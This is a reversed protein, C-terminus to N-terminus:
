SVSSVSSASRPSLSLSLNELRPNVEFTKSRRGKTAGERTPAPRLWRADCLAACARDMDAHDRIGPLDGRRLLRMQRANITTPRESLLLRALVAAQRDAEPISAEAFVRRAMPKAWREAFTIAADISARSVERPEMGAVWTDTTAWRLFEFLLAWRLVGGNMKGYAEALMGSARKTAEDHPGQWWDEFRDAADASLPVVVGCGEVATLRKFARRLLECDPRAGPRRKARPAPWAYIFRSALGDNDGSLILRSLRDPQITGLISVAMHPIDISGDGVRDLRYPRGGFLELYFARDGGNGGYRDFSGLLGALEDSFNIIGGPQEALIRALKEITANAVWLRPRPPAPPERADAPMDPAPEGDKVAQDVAKQWARRAARAKEVRAEHEDALQKYHELKEAEVELLARRIAECAPTKNTSPDGVLAGWFIAPEKWGPWVEVYRRAGLVGAAAALVALASYDVPATAAAAAAEVWRALPEGFAALPMIPAPEATRILISLDPEPWGTEDADALARADLANSEGAIGAEIGVKIADQVADAGADGLDRVLGNDLAAETLMDGALSRDIIDGYIAEGFPIASRKLFALREDTSGGAVRVAHSVDGLTKLASQRLSSRFDGNETGLPAPWHGNVRDAADRTSTRM